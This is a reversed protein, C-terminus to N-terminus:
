ILVTGVILTVRGLTSWHVTRNSTFNSMDIKVKSVAKAIRNVLIVESRVIARADLLSPYILGIIVLMFKLASERLNATSFPHHCFGNASISILAPSFNAERAATSNPIGRALKISGV